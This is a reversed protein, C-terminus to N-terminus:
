PMSLQQTIRPLRYRLRSSRPSDSSASLSEHSIDLCGSASLRQLRVKIPLGASFLQLAPRELLTGVVWNRVDDLAALGACSASLIPSLRDRSIRERLSNIRSTSVPSARRVPRQGCSTSGLLLTFPRNNVPEGLNRSTLESLSAAKAPELLRRGSVGVRGGRVWSLQPARDATGHAEESEVTGSDDASRRPSRSSSARLAVSM